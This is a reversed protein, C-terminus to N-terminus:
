LSIHITKRIKFKESGHNSRKNQRTLKKRTGKIKGYRHSKQWVTMSIKTVFVFLCFGKNKQKTQHSTPNVHPGTSSVDKSKFELKNKRCTNTLM